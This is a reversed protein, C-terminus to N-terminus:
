SVEFSEYLQRPSEAYRTSVSVNMRYKGPPANLPLTVVACRSAQGAFLVVRKKVTRVVLKRSRRREPLGFNARVWDEGDWMEMSGGELYRLRLSGFNRVQLYLSSGPQYQTADLWLGAAFHRPVVRVYQEFTALRHGSLREIELTYRFIGNGFRLPLAFRLQDIGRVRGLVRRKEDLIRGEEGKRDVRAIRARVRWNPKWERSSDHVSFAYGFYGGSVQIPSTAVPHLEVRPAFELQGNPPQHVDPLRRLPRLYDVAVHDRCNAPREAAVATGSSGLLALSLLCTVGAIGVMRGLM